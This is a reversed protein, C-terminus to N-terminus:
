VGPKYSFFLINARRGKGENSIYLNGASDFCIGEPQRLIRPNLHYIDKLTGDRGLLILLKGVNCLVYIDHTEPHVAVGSPKFNIKDDKWPPGKEANITNVEKRSLAYIPDDGIDMLETDLAYVARGRADNENVEPDEKCAVLIHGAVPDYGLGEVDNRPSLKTSFSEAEVVEQETFPFRYIRGNSKIAYVQSGVMEVGEYDGNEHFEIDRTVSKSVLDFIFFKGKEDQVCGITSDDIMTLGSIEVLEFPMPYSTEPNNLEYGIDSYDYEKFYQDLQSQGTCSVLLVLILLGGLPNSKIPM